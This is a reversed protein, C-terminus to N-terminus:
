TEFPALRAASSTPDWLGSPPTSAGVPGVFPPFSSAVGWPHRSLRVQQGGPCRAGKERGCFGPASDDESPVARHAHLSSSQVPCSQGRRCGSPSWPAACGSTDEPEQTESLSVGRGLRDM